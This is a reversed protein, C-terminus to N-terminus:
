SIYKQILDCSRCNAEYSSITIDIANYLHTSNDEVNCLIKTSYLAAMTLLIKLSYYTVQTSSFISRCM